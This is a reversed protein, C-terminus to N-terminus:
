SAGKLLIAQYERGEFLPFKYSRGNDPSSGGLFELKDQSDVQCNELLLPEKQLCSSVNRM